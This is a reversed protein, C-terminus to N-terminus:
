RFVNRIRQANRFGLWRHLLVYSRGTLDTVQPRFGAPIHKDHFAIARAPDHPYLLRIADFLFQLYAQEDHAQGHERVHQLIRLRLDLFRVWNEAVNTQSISGDARKRVETLVEGDFVPRANRELLRFMLDYEQSSRMRENWGGAALVTERKWLNASTIGLRVRMLDLWIDRPPAAQVSRFTEQGQDSVKRYSGVVLDPSGNQEALAVQRAIKGPLLLDDADLFQVYTGQATHLGTNRAVTAGANAQHLISVRESHRDRIRELARLTGDTSGDDVCIVELDPHTQQLASGLCAEVYGEVNYCPIVVSVKM